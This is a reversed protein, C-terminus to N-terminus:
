PMAHCANRDALMWIIAHSGVKLLRALARARAILQLLLLLLLLLLLQTGVERYNPGYGSGQLCAFLEAVTFAMAATQPTRALAFGILSLSNGVANVVVMIKRIALTPV